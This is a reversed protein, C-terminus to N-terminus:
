VEKKRFSEVIKAAEKQTTNTVGALRLAARVIDPSAKFVQEACAVLEDVTYLSEATDPAATKAATTKSAM